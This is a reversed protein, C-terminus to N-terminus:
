PLCTANFDTMALDGFAQLFTHLPCLAVGGCADLALPREQHLVMVQWGEKPGNAVDKEEEEREDENSSAEASSDERSEESSDEESSDGEPERTEEISNM